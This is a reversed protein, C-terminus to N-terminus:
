FRKSLGVVLTFLSDEVKSLGEPAQDVTGDSWVLTRDFIYDQGGDKLGDKLAVENSQGAILAEFAAHM